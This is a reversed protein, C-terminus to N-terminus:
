LPRLATKSDSEKPLRHGSRHNIRIVADCDRSAGKLMASSMLSLVTPCPCLRTQVTPSQSLIQCNVTLSKPM